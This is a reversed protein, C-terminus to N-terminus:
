PNRTVPPHQAFGMEGLLAVGAHGKVLVVGIPVRLRVLGNGSLIRVVRDAHAVLEHLRDLRVTVQWEVPASLLHFGAVPFAIGLGAFHPPCLFEPLLDGLRRPSRGVRAQLKVAGDVLPM